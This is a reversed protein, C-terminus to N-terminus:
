EAKKIRRRNSKTRDLVSIQVDHSEIKNEIRDLQESHRDLIEANQKYGDLLSALKEGHDNEIRAISQKLGGIEGELGGLKELVLKQIEDNKQFKDLVLSQFEENTM